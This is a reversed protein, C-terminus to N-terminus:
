LIGIGLFAAYCIKASVASLKRSIGELLQLVVEVAIIKKIKM